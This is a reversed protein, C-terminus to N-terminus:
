APERSILDLPFVAELEYGKGPQSHISVIGHFLEVRSKINIIGVGKKEKKEECGKGNDKISLVIQDKHKRLEISARSAASHKLINNVQEQIIRFINVQLEHPLESEVISTEHLEIKISHVAMVDTILIRINNLLGIIHSPPIILTKSIKRIVDIVEQIYGLAKSINVDRNEESKQVMQMYMKAVIMVQGLNDHIEQGISARDNEMATMVARTIAHQQEMKQSSLKKELLVRKSIDQTAGIIRTAIKNEDYMIHGRDCVYNYTGDSKKFRYEDEWICENGQNIIERLKLLVRDKDDPHICSKWFGAPVLTNEIPYGFVRKHGGDIWFIENTGLDWEWLCDNTIETVFRYLETLTNLREQPNAPNEPYPHNSSKFSVCLADESYWTAVDFWADMEVWYEQFHVPIDKLFAKHYVAYFEVPISKAFQQWLNKGAIENESVGLLKEAAKNWYKVTWKDDVIFYGNTMTEIFPKGQYSTISKRQIVENSKLLLQVPM